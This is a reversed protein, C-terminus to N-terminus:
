QVLSHKNGNIYLVKNIYSIRDGPVGIVRKVFNIKHDVPYYFLAVQGHAPEGISFLKKDWVPLRLGYHYQNVLIFDGPLVTPVLSSTPVRYPQIIFSRIVFVLLLVPFFSRAYEIVLPRKKQAFLPEHKILCFIFDCLIVAGFFIIVSLLILPFDFSTM